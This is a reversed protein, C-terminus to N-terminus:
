WKKMFPESQLAGRNPADFAPTAQRQDREEHPIAM